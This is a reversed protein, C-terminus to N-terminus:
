MMISNRSPQFHSTAVVAPYRTAAHFALILFFLKRGLEFGDRTLTNNEFKYAPQPWGAPVQFKLEAAVDPAFSPDPKCATFVATFVAVFSLVVVVTRKM